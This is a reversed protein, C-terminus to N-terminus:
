ERQSDVVVLLEGTHDLRGFSGKTTLSPLGNNVFSQIFEETDKCFSVVNEQLFLYEPCHDLLLNFASLIFKNLPAVM